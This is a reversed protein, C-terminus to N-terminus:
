VSRDIFASGSSDKTQRQLCLIALAWALGALMLIGGLTHAVMGWKQAHDLQGMRSLLYIWDHPGDDGTHGGLLILQPHLSDYIYPALDLLSVSGWWSGIAAGFNDRNVWIFAVGIGWPLALQFLSGGLIHMFEGFPMFIVHGAEHIPLLIHHMFSAGIEGDRYDYSFLFWSWVALLGLAICRGYFSLEDIRELPQLLFLPFNRGISTVSEDRVNPPLPNHQLQSQEWKFFYIGCAPCTASELLPQPSQYGCKPCQSYTKSM